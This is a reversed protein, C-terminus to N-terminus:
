KRGAKVKAAARALPEGVFNVRLNGGELGWSAPKLGLSGIEIAPLALNFAQTSLSARVKDMITDVSIRTDPQYKKLYTQEWGFSVPQKSAQMAFEIKGGAALRLSAPGAALSRFEVMPAFAGSVYSHLRVALPMSLDGLIAGGAGMREGAFAPPGVPLFQFRFEANTPYRGLEPFVWFQAFRDTMFSSFAPIDRSSVTQELKGAFYEGMLLSKIAAFPLLINGAEVAGNGARAAKLLHVQEIQQGAAVNPYEFRLDGGLLLGNGNERAFSPTVYARVYDKGTPIEQESFLIGSAAQSWEAFKKMVQERVPADISQYTALAKLAEEKVIEEFGEVGTCRVAEVNWAGPKWSAEYSPLSLKVQNDAVEARVRASVRSSGVPLSMVLGSCEANVDIWVRIGDMVRLIRGSARIKDVYLKAGLADTSVEWERAGGPVRKPAPFDYTLETRIGQISVPIGQSQVALDNIKIEQRGQLASGFDGIVQDFLKEGLLLEFQSKVSYQANAPSAALASTLLLIVFPKM